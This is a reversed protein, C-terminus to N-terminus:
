GGERNAARERLRRLAKLDELDKPRGAAEKMAILDDLCPVHIPRGDIVSEV